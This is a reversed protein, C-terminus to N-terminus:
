EDTSETHTKTDLIVVEEQGAKMKFPLKHQRFFRNANRRLTALALYSISHQPDDWVGVALSEVSARRGPKRWVYDLLRWVLPSPVDYLTDNFAFKSQDVPGVHTGMTNGVVSTLASSLHRHTM